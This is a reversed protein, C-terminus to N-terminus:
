RNHDARKRREPNIYVGNWRVPNSLAASMTCDIIMDQLEQTTREDEPLTHVVLTIVHTKLM